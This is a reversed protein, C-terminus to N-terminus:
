RVTAMGPETLDAALGTGNLIEALLEDISVNSVNLTVREGLLTQHEPSFRLERNLSDAVKQLIQIRTATTNNMTFRNQDAPRAVPTQHEVLWRRIRALDAVTGTGTIESGRRSIRAVDSFEKRAAKMLTKAENSQCLMIKKGVRDNSELSQELPSTTQQSFKPSLNFGALLLVLRDAFEMEPLDGGPWLDHEVEIPWEISAEDMTQRLLIEPDTLPTWSLSRLKGTRPKERQPLASIQERVREAIVPLRQATAPPGLYYVDGIPCVDLNLQSALTWLFQEFTVGTLSITVITGPDVRRDLFVAM